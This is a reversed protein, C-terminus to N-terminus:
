VIRLILNDDDIKIVDSIQNHENKIHQIDILFLHKEKKSLKKNFKIDVINDSITYSLKILPNYKVLNRLPIVLIESKIRAYSKKAEKKEIEDILDEVLIFNKKYIKEANKTMCNILEHQCDM